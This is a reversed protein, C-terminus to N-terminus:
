ISLWQKSELGVRVERIFAGRRLGFYGNLVAGKLVEVCIHRFDLCKDVQVLM